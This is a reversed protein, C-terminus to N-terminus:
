VGLPVARDTLAGPSRTSPSGLGLSAWHCLEWGRTGQAAGASNLCDVPSPCLMCESSLHSHPNHNAVSSIFPPLSPHGCNYQPVRTRLGTGPLCVPLTPPVWAGATERWPSVDLHSSSPLASSLSSAGWICDHPGSCLDRLGEGQCPTAGVVPILFSLSSLQDREWKRLLVRPEGRGLAHPNLSQSTAVRTELKPRGLGRWTDTPFCLGTFLM